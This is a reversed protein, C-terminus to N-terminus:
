FQMYRIYASDTVPLVKGGNYTIRVKSAQYGMFASLVAVVALITLRNKLIVNALKTWFM